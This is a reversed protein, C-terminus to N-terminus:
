GDSLSHKDVLALAAFASWTLPPQPHISQGLVLEKGSTQCRFDELLYFYCEAPILDVSTDVVEKGGEESEVWGEVRGQLLWGCTILAGGNVVEYNAEDRAPGSLQSRLM